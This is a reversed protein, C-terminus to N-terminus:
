GYKMVNQWFEIKEDITMDNIRITEDNEGYGAVGQIAIGPYEDEMNVMSTFPHPSWLSLVNYRHRAMEDFWTTWFDMDWVHKIAIKHSHADTSYYYTPSKKDLPINFKIGRNKLLPSEEENYQGDLGNFLINEAIQLAGYMAGNDDGGLVWYSLQPSNTTRLAYAQEGLNDVGGGGQATLVTTVKANSSLGIVVKKGTCNDALTSIDKVEVTYNKTELAKQIDGAAFTHQPTDPNCFM